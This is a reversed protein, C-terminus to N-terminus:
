SFQHSRILLHSAEEVFLLLSMRVTQCHDCLVFVTISFPLVFGVFLLAGLARVFPLM